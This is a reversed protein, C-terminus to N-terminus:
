PECGEKEVCERSGLLLRESYSIPVCTSALRASALDDDLTSLPPPLSLDAALEEPPPPPPFEEPSLEDWPPLLLM